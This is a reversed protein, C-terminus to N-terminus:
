DRIKTLSGSDQKGIRFIMAVYAYLCWFSSSTRGHNFFSVISINSKRVVPTTGHRALTVHGSRSLHVLAIERGGASIIWSAGSEVWARGIRRRVDLGLRLSMAWTTIRRLPSTYMNWEPTSWYTRPRIRASANICLSFSGLAVQYLRWM